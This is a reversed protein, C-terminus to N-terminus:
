AAQKKMSKTGAKVFSLGTVEAAIERSRVKVLIADGQQVSGAEIYGQGIGVQLVPSFGGSTLTGIVTKDDARLIEAGERAIGKDKLMVGVRSRQVGMEQQERVQDHGFFDGNNKSVVWGISAEVPSITEDLDHGYLPYGMELRLTDRSALGAPAVSDNAILADWVAPALAEPVSLEFGDEGTYGLRSVYIKSSEYAFEEFWMYPQESCDFGLVAQLVAESDRGQIAILARDALVQLTAGDILQKNMWELDVDKRGANIVIFFTEEGLRTVIMDDIIGGKENTLVTYKARGDPANTFDSPCIKHVYDMATSGSVIVQGMHSVDFLGAKERVWEHEKLAGDKYYLPMDYGAFPGMKAGLEIHNQYLPTQKM